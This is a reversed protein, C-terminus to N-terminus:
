GQRGESTMIDYDTRTASDPHAFTAYRAAPTGNLTYELFGYSYWVSDANPMTFRMVYTGSTWDSGWNGSLKKSFDGKNADELSTAYGFGVLYKGDDNTNISFSTTDTPAIVELTMGVVYTDGKPEVFYDRVTVKPANVTTGGTGDTAYHAYFKVTVNENEGNFYSTKRDTIQESGDNITWYAFTYTVGDQTIKEPANIWLSRGVNVTGGEKYAAEGDGIVNYIALTYTQRVFFAKVTISSLNPEPKALEADIAAKVAKSIEETTKYEGEGNLTWHNLTYYRISPVAVSGDYTYKITYGTKDTTVSEGNVLQSTQYDFGLSYVVADFTAVYTADGTVSTIEPDWGSFVYGTKTPTDSNYEPTTGYPVNEDTELVTMGSGLDELAKKQQATLGSYVTGTDSSAYGTFKAFDSVITDKCSDWLADAASFDASGNEVIEIIRKAIYSSSTQSGVHGADLHMKVLSEHPMYGADWAWVGEAKADNYITQAVEAIVADVGAKIEAESPAGGEMVWKVTYTNLTESFAAYYTVDDTVAPLSALAKGTTQDTSTAWGVFAYTYQATAAKTPEAFGEPYAPAEGDNVESTDYTTNGDQSKWTVTHTIAVWQAYLTLDATLTIEAKDAYATGKGDAQTNWGVFDYGTRTFANPTLAQSEGSELKQVTMTGTGGNANFTIHFPGEANVVVMGTFLSLVMVLCLVMSLLRKKVVIGEM